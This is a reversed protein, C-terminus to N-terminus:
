SLVLLFALALDYPFAPARATDAYLAVQWEPVIDMSSTYRNFGRHASRRVLGAEAFHRVENEFYQLDGSHGVVAFSGDNTIYRLKTPQEFDKCAKWPLDHCALRQM